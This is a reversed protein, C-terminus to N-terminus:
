HFDTSHSLQEMRVSPCTFSITSKRLKELAGLATLMDTRKRAEVAFTSLMHYGVIFPTQTLVVGFKAYHPTVGIWLRVRRLATNM